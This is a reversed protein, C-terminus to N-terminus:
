RALLTYLLRGVSAYAKRTLDVFCMCLSTGKRRALQHVWRVVCIMDIMSRQSRFGCHEEPLIDDRQYYNSLRNVVVKHLVMGAHVVLSIGRFNGCVTRDKKKHLVIITADKWRQPVGGGRRIGIMVAHFQELIQSNGYRDEDVILEPLEAPLEHPGFM